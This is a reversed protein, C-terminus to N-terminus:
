PIAMQIYQFSPTWALGCKWARYAPWTADISREPSTIAPPSGRTRQCEDRLPRREVLVLQQRVPLSSPALLREFLDLGQRLM